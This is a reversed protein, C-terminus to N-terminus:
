RRACRVQFSTSNKSVFSQFGDSFRIRRAANVSGESSSWYQLGLNFNNIALRNQWMVYLEGQAPLYWDDRGHINLSECAQAALHPQTGPASSSDATNLFASNSKGQNCAAVANPSATTCNALATDLWNTSGDNWPPRTSTGVCASGDWTQGLDCRTVYMPVDGDPSNGAFVSGDACVTGIAPTGNCVDTSKVVTDTVPTGANSAADTLTLSVTLTGDGLGSVDIGTVSQTATSITGSGTVPTGGGSSTISYDFTAGVEAGTMQFAAATQNGSNIPDTTFAVAYGNPATSDKTVTNTAAAGTNLAADTLTLSVTLTGDGLGSVNIGSVNQTATSITGSGTVPTGGGSSTISYNFTAGVEAGTMQFAAASQNGSNIPDTTFTVAYGSPPTTDGGGIVGSLNLVQDAITSVAIKGNSTIASGNTEMGTVTIVSQGADGAQLVYGFVLTNSGSGSILNAVRSQGGISLTLRPTGGSVTVPSSFQQSIQVTQGVATADVAIQPALTPYPAAKSETLPSGVRDLKESVDDGHAVFTPTGSAVTGVVGNVSQGMGETIITAEGSVTGVLRVSGDRVRVTSTSGNSVLDIDTGLLTITGGPVNVTVNTSGSIYQATGTILTVLGPEIRVQSGQGVTLIGGDILRIRALTGPSNEVTVVAPMNFSLGVFLGLTGEDVQATNTGTNEIVQLGTSLRKRVQTRITNDRRVRDYVRDAVSVLGTRPAFQVDLPDDFNMRLRVAMRLEPDRMNEDTVGGSFVLAPVPSWEMTANLGYIDQVGLMSNFTYGRVFGTFEPYEPFQGSVEVDWGSLAHSEYLADITRWGSLAQYRNATVGYQDTRAEVGLSMRNHKQDLQHDFFLNTGVLLTNDNLLKRYALGFNLTDDADQDDTDRTEHQWSVQNFLFHGGERDEWLPQISMVSFQGNVDTVGGEIEIRNLYPLGSGRAWALGEGLIADAAMRRLGEGYETAMQGADFSAGSGCLRSISVPLSFGTDLIAKWQRQLEDDGLRSLTNCAEQMAASGSSSGGSETVRRLTDFADSVRQQDRSLVKESAYALTAISLFVGVAIAIRGPLMLPRKKQTTFWYM